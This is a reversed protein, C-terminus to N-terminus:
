AWSFRAGAMMVDGHHAGVGMVPRKIKDIDQRKEPVTLSNDETLADGHGHTDAKVIHCRFLLRLVVAEAERFAPLRGIHRDILEFGNDGAPAEATAVAGSRGM